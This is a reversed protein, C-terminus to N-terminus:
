QGGRVLRVRGGSSKRDGFGGGDGFSVIWAYSGYYAIPSSSWYWSNVTNPFYNSDIAPSYTGFDVISSLENKNPLRWNTAGCLSQSNVRAVFAQTNCFSNADGSNYNYCINGNNDAYGAAGGNTSANTNYWNYRDNNHHLGTTNTKVEWMLGTHNDQVCSWQAANAPLTNGNADLKTFDFGANGAGVKTLTGATAQADRGYEADQGNYDTVPCGLGNSSGSSCTTIGTDNLKGTSTTPPTGTPTITLSITRTTSRGADDTVTVTFELIIEETIEPLVFTLTLGTALDIDELQHNVNIGSDQTILYSAINGVQASWTIQVSNVATSSFSLLPPLGEEVQYILNNVWNISALYDLAEQTFVNNLLSVTQLLTNNTFDISTLQNNDLNLHTININSSLDIETLQNNSLDLNVLAILQAIGTADTINLNSCDLTTIQEVSQWHNAQAAQAVCNALNADTFVLASIPNTISPLTSINLIRFNSVLNWTNFLNFTGVYPNGTGFDLLLRLQGDIETYEWSAETIDNSGQTYIFLKTASIFDFYVNAENAMMTFRYGELSNTTLTQYHYLEAIKIDNGLSTLNEDLDVVGDAFNLTLSGFANSDLILDNNAVQWTLPYEVIDTSVEGTSADKSQGAFYVRPGSTTLKLILTSHLGEDDIERIVIVKNTLEALPISTLEGGNALNPTVEVIVTDTDTAGQNDTVTLQLEYRTNATVSPAVFGAMVSEANDITLTQNNLFSWQYSVINGDTDISQSGDLEVTEGNTILIDIGANAIPASNVPNITIAITDQAQAGSNDTATLAFTLVEVESVTPAIFTAELSNESNLTANTGNTQQWLVTAIAGGVDTASGTLTVLTQEDVSQDSGASVTPIPNEDEVNPDTGDLFESLNSRGDNDSDESADDVTPMLGHTVEWGDPMGDNDSDANNPFTCANFEELNSIGDNDIDAHASSVQYKTAWYDPLSDQNEDRFDLVVDQYQNAWSGLESHGSFRLRYESKTTLLAQADYTFGNGQMVISDNDATPFVTWHGSNEEWDNLTENDTFPLKIAKVKAQVGMLCSNTAGLIDTPSLSIVPLGFLPTKNLVAYTNFDDLNKSPWGAISKDFVEFGARLKLDMGIGANLKTFRYDSSIDVGTELAALGVFEGEIGAEAYIYPEVKIHGSTFEYFYLKLEPVLRLEAYAEAKASGTLKYSLSPRSERVAIWQGHVYKFGASFDFGVNLHNTLDLEGTAIANFEGTLTFEGRIIVPVGGVVLVKVFSKKVFQQSGKVEGSVNAIVQLDADFDLYGSVVAHANQLKGFSIKAGVDIKPEFKFSASGIITIDGEKNFDVSNLKPIETSGVYIKVSITASGKNCKYVICDRERVKAKFTAIYPQATQTDVHSEKTTWSLTVDRKNNDTGYPTSEVRVGYNTNEPKIKNHSIKIFELESVKYNNQSDNIVAASITFTGRKGPMFSVRLPGKVMLNVDKIEQHRSTIATSQATTASIKYSRKSSTKSPNPSSYIEQSLTLGSSQWKLENINNGSISISKKLSLGALNMKRLNNQTVNESVPVDILKISTNLDLEDYIENLAANETDVTVQDGNISVGTIKRLIGKENSSVIIEGIQPEPEDAGLTYILQTDTVAVTTVEHVVQSSNVVVASAMTTVSMQNSYSINNDEDEAVIIAYYTTNATFGLLEASARGTLELQNTSASPTFGIQESVHIIYKINATLSLNDTTELWDINFSNESLATLAVLAVNNPAQSDNIMTVIISDTATAGLDDTVTLQFTATKEEVLDPITLTLTSASDDSITLTDGAIQQWQYQAIEGDIDGTTATLTITSKESVSIDDGLALTPAINIHNVNISIEDTAQLGSNDTVTLSFILTESKLITPITFSAASHSPSNLVVSTGSVQAWQYSAISGDNDTASGQLTVTATEEVAQDEGANVMPAQNVYSFSVEVSCDATVAATTYVDGDLSGVCGTVSDIIYHDDATLTFTTTKNEDINIAQPSISGGASSTATIAFQKVQTQTPKEDSGGGCASLTFVFLTSIIYKVLGININVAPPLM